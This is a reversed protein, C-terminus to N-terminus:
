SSFKIERIPHLSASPCWRSSGAYFRFKRADRHSLKHRRRDSSPRLTCRSSIRPHVESRRSCRFKRTAPLLWGRFSDPECSPASPRSQTGSLCSSRRTQGPPPADGSRGGVLSGFTRRKNSRFQAAHVSIRLLRLRWRLISSTRRDLSLEQIRLSTCRPLQRLFPKIAYDNQSCMYRWIIKLTWYFLNMRKNNSVDRRKMKIKKQFKKACFAVFQKVFAAHDATTM